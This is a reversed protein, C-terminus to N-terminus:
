CVYIIYALNNSINVNAPNETNLVYNLTNKINISNYNVFRNINSDDTLIIKMGTDKLIFKVRDDPYEPEIPLYAGGAKLIALIGIIMELSRPVMIGVIEDPKVGKNRLTNALSNAKQNLEKYTLHKDEFVVAINDPTREVQEEFLQHITKDKPYDAYTNNFDYLIKKKESETLMEIKCILNNPNDLAHWLLSLIHQHIFEIEEDYYLDSHYDYDIILVGEEDRDNIHITLSNSQHGNFHWRTFYEVDHTKDFKSNQYSLVIDYLNDTFGHKERVFGIYIAIM